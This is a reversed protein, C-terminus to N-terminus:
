SGAAARMAPLTEVNFVAMLLREEPTPLECMSCLVYRSREWFEPGCVRLVTRRTPLGCAICAHRRRMHGARYPVTM